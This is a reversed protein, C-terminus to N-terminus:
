RRSVPFAYPALAPGAASPPGSSVPPSPDDFCVNPGDGSAPTRKPAGAAEPRSRPRVGRFFAVLIARRVWFGLDLGAKSAAM